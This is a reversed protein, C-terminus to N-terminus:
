PTVIRVEVNLLSKIHFFLLRFVHLLAHIFVKAENWEEDESHESEVDEGDSDADSLTVSAASEVPPFFQAGFRGLKFIAKQQSTYENM